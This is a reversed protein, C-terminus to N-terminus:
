TSHGGPRSNRIESISSGTVGEVIKWSRQILAVSVSDLNFSLCDEQIASDDPTAALSSMWMVAIIAM